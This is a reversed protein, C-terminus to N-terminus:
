DQFYTKGPYITLQGSGEGEWKLDSSTVTVTYDYVDPILSELSLILQNGDCQFLNDALNDDSHKMHAKKLTLKYTYNIGESAVPVGTVILVCTEIPQQLINPNVDM